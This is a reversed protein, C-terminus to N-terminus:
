ETTFTFVMGYGGNGSWGPGMEGPLGGMMGGTAMQGGMGRMRGMDIGRGDADRMGGGVHVTYATRHSLPADPTLVCQTRDASWAAHMPVVPGTAAGEHLSVYTEMGVMMPHDFSLTVNTTTSVNVAGGQPAIGVLATSPLSSPGTTDHSCAAATALIAAAMASGAMSRRIRRHTQSPSPTHM